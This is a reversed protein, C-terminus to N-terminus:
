FQRSDIEAGGFLTLAAFPSAEDVRDPLAYHAINVYWGYATGRMADTDIVIQVDDPMDAIIARMQGVTLIRRGYQDIINLMYENLNPENM